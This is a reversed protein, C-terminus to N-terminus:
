GNATGGGDGTYFAATRSAAARADTPDAGSAIAAQCWGDSSRRMFDKGEDTAPWTMPDVTKGVTTYPDLGLLSLDWGVRTRRSM